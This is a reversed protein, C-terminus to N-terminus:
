EPETGDPEFIAEVTDQGHDFRLKIGVLHHKEDIEDFAAQVDAGTVPPVVTVVAREGHGCRTTAELVAHKARRRHQRVDGVRGNTRTNSPSPPPYLAQTM